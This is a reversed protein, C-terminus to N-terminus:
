KLKLVKKKLFRMGLGVVLPFIMDSVVPLVSGAVQIVKGMKTKPQTSTNEDKKTLFPSVVAKIGPPLNDQLAGVASNMLLGGINHQLYSFHNDLVVEQEKVQQRLQEKRLQIKQINTMMTDIKM